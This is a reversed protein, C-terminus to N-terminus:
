RYVAPNVCTQLRAGELGALLNAAAHEVLRHRGQDTSSAIHPTVIVDDRSMLPHDPPLPEPTTVDLGAAGVRGSDLAALLATQDVLGGRSANIFIVGHRMSDFAASDFLEATDSTLPCHASIVDSQDLLVALDCLEIGAPPNTLHPDHAVVTMELARAVAAVRSGIRGLGVLGITKGALEVAENAPGYGGSQQRLRRQNATLAKAAHMLLAIAHEATSVTPAEPANAVVVGRATAADVDIADYGIGMRSLVRLNPAMDLRVADWTAGGVLAGHVRGLDEDGPGVVEFGDFLPLYRNALVRDAHVVTM